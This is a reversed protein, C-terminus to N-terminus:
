DKEFHARFYKQEDGAIYFEEWDKYLYKIGYDETDTVSILVVSVNYDNMINGKNEIEFVLM